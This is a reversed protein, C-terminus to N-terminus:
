VARLKSWWEDYKHYLTPRVNQWYINSKTIKKEVTNYVKTYKEVDFGKDPNSSAYQPCTQVPVMYGRRIAMRCSYYGGLMWNAVHHCAAFLKEDKAVPAHIVLGNYWGDYGETPEAYRANIGREQAAYVIPEWGTMVWVEEKAVLDVGQQWGNWLRIKLEKKRDILWRMLEALESETLDSPDSIEIVGNERLYLAAFIVSNLWSDEMALRGRVRDPEAPDFFQKYTTIEGVRDPLYIMSDANLVIPLSYQKGNVRTSPIQKAKPWVSSWNSILSLDWPVILGGEALEREAGGQLGGLHYDRLASGRMMANIVPGVDNGNDQFNIRVGLGQESMETKLQEWGDKEVDLTGTGFVNVVIEKSNPGSCAGLVIMGGVALAQELFTRRSIAM